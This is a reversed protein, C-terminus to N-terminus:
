FTTTDKRWSYARELISTILPDKLITYTARDNPYQQALKVKLEEYENVDQPHNRLYDRFVIQKSWYDGNLTAISLHFKARPKGKRFFIRGPVGADGRYTYEANELKSINQIDFINIDGVGVVIDIIPKASLGPISTSGVHQIDLVTDGLARLLFMKERNFEDSWSSTYENLQVWNPDYEKEEM